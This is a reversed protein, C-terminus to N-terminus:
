TKSALSVNKATATLCEQRLHEIFHELDLEGAKVQKVVSGTVTGYLWRVTDKTTKRKQGVCIPAPQINGMDWLAHSWGFASGCGAAAASLGDSLITKALAKANDRRYVYECRLLHARPHPDNFRYVRAFRDSKFSGVYFTEGEGSRVDSISKFRKVDRQAAFQHPHTYEDAIDCAIDLRTCRDQVLVLLNEMAGLECVRECGRGTVEVLIHPCAPGAFISVGGDERGWRVSYPARPRGLNFAQDDIISQTSQGLYENTAQEVTPGLLHNPTDYVQHFPITFSLYDISVYM